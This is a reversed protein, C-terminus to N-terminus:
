NIKLVGKMAAWHGPFSCFFTYESASLGALSFTVSSEEGGGVIETHAIVREDGPQLYNNELGAAMGDQAIGNFDDATSLVWNHGMANKPLQGTHKLTVTVTECGREVEITNRDYALGDGASITVNCEAWSAQGVLLLLLLLTRHM